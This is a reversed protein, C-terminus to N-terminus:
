ATGLQKLVELFGAMEGRAMAREAEMVIALKRAMTRVAIEDAQARTKAATARTSEAEAILKAARAAIEENEFSARGLRSKIHEISERFVAQAEDRLKRSDEQNVMSEMLREIMSQLRKSISLRSAAVVPEPGAGALVNAGIGGRRVRVFVEVVLQMVAKARDSNLLSAALVVGHETFVWPLTRRGGWSPMVFHSRLNEWEEETLEFAWPAPFRDQNRKFAQNFVRTEVAFLAALDADLMVREGRVEHVASADLAPISMAMPGSVALQAGVM